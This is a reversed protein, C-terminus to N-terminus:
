IKSMLLSANTGGFGFSNSIAHKITKKVAKNPTLNLGLKAIDPDISDLNITPPVVSDRMALLTIIAEIAGAAGLLHGTMSKTASVHLKSVNGEMLTHIATSEEIDGTGTSTAHANVYDIDGPNLGAEKLAAKMARLGGEGGPAPSTLHYADATAGYGTIEGYIKAGRKKAHEYNELVLIAAGEGMVFGDRDKDFPRSARKPEDNRTSLAKMAGFGGIGLPSITAESGGAVMIDCEGRKIVRVAEGIAHSSSACATVVCQQSGKLNLLMSVQGAAMNAIVQPIFFPSIRKPDKREIVTEYTAEIEPLGGMGVGINTGLREPSISDRLSDIGSDRYAEIAAALAFQVFLGLRRVDKPPSIATVPAQSKGFPYLPAYQKLPDFGRVEAAIKTPYQTIDFHTIPGMASNGALIESWTTPVDLGLPTVAGIGTVVVRTM